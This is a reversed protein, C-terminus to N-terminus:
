SISGSTCLKSSSSQQGVTRWLCAFRAIDAALVHLKPTPAEDPFNVPFWAAFSAVRLQLARVEHRCLPRCASYLDVCQRLKDMRTFFLQERQSSGFQKVQGDITRVGTPGVVAAVAAADHLLRNSDNGALIDGSPQFFALVSFCGFV